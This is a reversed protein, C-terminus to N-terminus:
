RGVFAAIEEAATRADRALTADPEDRAYAELFARDEERHLGGLAALAAQRVNRNRDLALERLRPALAADGPAARLWGDLAALRVAREFRADTHERFLPVLSADALEALGQLAGLRIVNWWSGRALQRKLFAVADPDGARTLGAAAVAAVDEATDREVLRQLAAVARPGRAEALGLAVARRVRRDPDATAAVLARLAADGGMRGLGLAAEQRLGWHVNADALRGALDAV